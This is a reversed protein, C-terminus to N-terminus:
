LQDQGTHGDAYRRSVTAFAFADLERQYANIDYPKGGDQDKGHPSFLDKVVIVFKDWLSLDHRHTATVYERTRNNDSDTDAGANALSRPPRKAPTDSAPLDGADSPAVRDAATHGPHCPAILVTGAKIKMQDVAAQADKRDQAAAPSSPSQHHALMDVLQEYGRTGQLDLGKVYGSADIGANAPPILPYYCNPNGSVNM